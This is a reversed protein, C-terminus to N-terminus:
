DDTVLSHWPSGAPTTGPCMRAHLYSYRFDDEEDEDILCKAKALRIAEWKDEWKDEAVVEPKHQFTKYLNALRQRVALAAVVFVLPIAGIWLGFYICVSSFVLLFAIAAKSKCIPKLHKDFKIALLLLGYVLAVPAAVFGCFLFVPWLVDSASSNGGRLYGFTGLLAFVCGFVVFAFATSFILKLRFIFRDKLDSAEAQEQFFLANVDKNKLKSVYM